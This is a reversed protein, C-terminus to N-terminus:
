YGVSIRLSVRNDAYDFVLNSNSDFKEYDYLLGARLWLQLNYNLAFGAHYLLDRRSAFAGSNEYQGNELSGTM